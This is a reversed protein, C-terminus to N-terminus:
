PIGPDPPAVGPTVTSASASTAASAGRPTSTSRDRRCRSSRRPRPARPCRCNTRKRLRPRLRIGARLHRRIAPDEVGDISKSLRELIGFDFDLRFDKIIVMEGDEVLDAVGGRAAMEPLSMERFYDEVDPHREILAM